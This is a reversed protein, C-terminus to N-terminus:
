PRRQDGSYDYTGLLGARHQRCHAGGDRVPGLMPRAPDLLGDTFENVFVTECGSGLNAKKELAVERTSSAKTAM